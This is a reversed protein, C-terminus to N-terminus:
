SNPLHALGLTTLKEPTLRGNQDLGRLQYYEQLMSNLPPVSGTAAGESLPTLLRPPLTDSAAGAGCLTGISRKLCWTREGCEMIKVIPWPQGTAAELAASLDHDSFVMGGLLCFLASGGFVTGLDQTKKVMEAKGQGTQGQYVDEGLGTGPFISAGQEVLMTLSSVHCSGRISTAYALGLGYWARPDHMPSELGKVTTQLAEAGLEQALKASGQALKQGLGQHAAIQNVLEILLAPDSWKLALGNTDKDNLLGKEYCEIALAITAGCSITDLGHRNCLSNLHAIAEPDSVLCMTGFSAVTEYEPGPGRETAYPGNPVAVERKCAVPCAYCTGVGVQIGEALATGNIQEAEEWYGLQWNKVPVDGLMMGLDLSSNTGQASLAQILYSDELKQRLAKNLSALNDPRAPQYKGSGKVTVAKLKKSGMVAGLGCRGFYHKKDHAICAYPVLNEGAKGICAVRGEDQLAAWTEYTDLGWLNDAAKLSATNDTIQLTVPSPSRGTIIVGDFGARKLEPGLFGGANSEGWIGTLPSKACAVMRSACPLPSGTLPGTMFILPNAPGLPDTEGCRAGLLDFFLAAGLGSGGLYQEVLPQELPIAEIRSETLDVKLIKGCYGYMM